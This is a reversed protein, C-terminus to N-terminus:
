KTKITMYSSLELDQKFIAGGGGLRIYGVIIEKKSPLAFVITSWGDENQSKIWINGSPLDGTISRIKIFKKTKYINVFFGEKNCVVRINDYFFYKSTKSYNVNSKYIAETLPHNSLRLTAEVEPQSVLHPKLPTPRSQKTTEKRYVTEKLSTPMNITEVKPRIEKASVKTIKEQKPLPQAKFTEDDIPDFFSPSASAGSMVNFDM